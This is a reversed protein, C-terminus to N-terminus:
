AGLGDNAVDVSGVATDPDGMLPRGIFELADAILGPTEGGRKRVVMEWGRGAGRRRRSDSAAGWDSRWVCTRRFTGKGRAGARSRPRKASSSTKRWRKKLANEVTANVVGALMKRM